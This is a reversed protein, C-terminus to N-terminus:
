LRKFQHDDWSLHMMEAEYASWVLSRWKLYQRLDHIRYVETCSIFHPILGTLLGKEFMLKFLPVDIKLYKCLEDRTVLDDRFPSAVMRDIEECNWGMQPVYTPHPYRDM